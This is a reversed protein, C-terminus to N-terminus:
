VRAYVVLILKKGKCRLLKRSSFKDFDGENECSSGTTMGDHYWVMGDTGIVRSTFYFDGHYILGRVDLVVTEGEQEFKLTKSVKIKRSNIEFVLVSPASKSNIPQMM